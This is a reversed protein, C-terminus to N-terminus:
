TSRNYILLLFNVREAAPPVMGDSFVSDEKSSVLDSRM